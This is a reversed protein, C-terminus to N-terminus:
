LNLHEVVMYLSYSDHFADHLKLKHETILGFAKYLAGSPYDDINVSTKSKVLPELDKFKRKFDPQFFKETNPNKTIYWNMNEKIVHWDNGWSYVNDVGITFAYLNKMALEFDLGYKDVKEQTIGTLRTFYNSLTPNKKPKIYINLQDIVEGDSIKLGGMQVIEKHENPDSWNNKQSDPWATYETDFVIYENM